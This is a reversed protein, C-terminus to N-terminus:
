ASGASAVFWRDRRKGRSGFHRPLGLAEHSMEYESLERRDHVVGDKLDFGLARLEPEIDHELESEHKYLLVLHNLWQTKPGLSTLWDILTSFTWDHIWYVPRWCEFINNVYYLHLTEHRIQKCARTIPPPPSRNFRDMRIASRQLFGAAPHDRHSQPVPTWETVAHM